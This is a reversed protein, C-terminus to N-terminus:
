SLFHNQLDFRRSTHTVGINLQWNLFQYLIDKKSDGNYQRLSM